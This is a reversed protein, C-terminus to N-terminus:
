SAATRLLLPTFRTPILEHAVNTRIFVVASSTLAPIVDNVMSRSSMDSSDHLKRLGASPVRLVAAIQERLRDAETETDSRPEAPRYVCVLRAANARHALLGANNWNTCFNVYNHTGFGYTCDYLWMDIARGGVGAVSSPTILVMDAGAAEVLPKGGGSHGSVYVRQINGVWSARQGMEPSLYPRGAPNRLCRLHEYCEMVLEQLRATGPGNPTGDRATGYQGRPPVSWFRGTTREADEPVLVVPDKVARDAFSTAPSLGNQAAALSELGYHLPAAKKGAAAARGTADAWRPVRSHGSPDASAPVDGTRAVTVYNNNGHFFILLRREATTPVVAAISRYDDRAGSSGAVRTVEAPTVPLPARTAILLALADTVAVDRACLASVSTPGPAPDPAEAPPAPMPLPRVRRLVVTHDRLRRDPGHEYLTERDVDAVLLCRWARGGDAPSRRVVLDDSRLGTPMRAGPRAVVRWCQDADDGFFPEAREAMRRGDDDSGPEPVSSELLRPATQGMLDRFFLDADDGFFPEAGEAMRRGDHDFGPEPVSSELLRPATQGMLDRFFLDADNRAARGRRQPACRGRNDYNRAM